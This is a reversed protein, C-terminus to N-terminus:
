PVDGSLYRLRLANLIICLSSLSMAASAVMPDLLIGWTPYFVGAAVLLGLGNYFLAFFLNQRITTQIARSLRCAKLLVPLGGTLSLVPGGIRRSPLTGGLLIHLDVPGVSPLFEQSVLAVRLGRSRLNEWFSTREPEPPLQTCPLGVKDGPPLEIEHTVFLNINSLCELAAGDNWGLGLRSAAGAGAKRALPVALGLACPCAVVLVSVTQLVAQALRPEPGLVLWVVFTLVAVALVLGIFYKSIRDVLAQPAPSMMESSLGSAPESVQKRVSEELAQGFLVIVIITAASEYYLPLAAPHHHHHGAVPFIQPMFTALLSYLYAILSGLAVLTFMNLQGKVVSSAARQFISWGAGFLLLTSLALQLASSLAPNLWSSPQFRPLMDGMSLYFLPLLLALSMKLRGGSGAEGSGSTSEMTMGCKPCTGPGAQRIEPHMPCAYSEPPDM